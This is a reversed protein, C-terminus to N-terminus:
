PIALVPTLSPSTSGITNIALIMSLVVVHHLITEFVSLKPNVTRMFSRLSSHLPCPKRHSHFVATLILHLSSRKNRPPFSTILMLAPPLQVVNTISSLRCPFRVTTLAPFQISSGAPPTHAALTTVRYIDVSRDGYFCSLIDM